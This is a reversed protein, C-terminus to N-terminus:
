RRAKPLMHDRAFRWAAKRVTQQPPFLGAEQWGAHPYVPRHEAERLPHASPPICCDPHMLSTGARAFLLGWAGQLGVRVPGLGELRAATATAWQEHDQDKCATQAQAQLRHTAVPLGTSGSSGSSPCLIAGTGESSAGGWPNSAEQARTQKSCM